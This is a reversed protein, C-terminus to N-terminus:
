NNTAAAVVRLKHPCSYWQGEKKDYLKFDPIRLTGEKLPVFRIQADVTQQSKVEGLLLASDVALLENDRKHWITGDDDGSSLGWVGFTFGGNVEAVSPADTTSTEDEVDKAMILMLDRTKEGLYLVRLSVSFPVRVCCSNEQLSIDIRFADLPKVVVHGTSWLADAAVVVRPHRNSDNNEMAVVAMVSIPSAFTRSKLDDTANVTIVTTYADHPQLTLPLQPETQPAYGWQVQRSLDVVSREGGPMSRDKLFLADQRSHGPHLAINTIIVPEAHTNSHTMKLSVLTNGHSSGAVSKVSINLAHTLSVNISVPGLRTQNAHHNSSHKTTGSLPLSGGGLELALLGSAMPRQQKMPTRHALVATVDLTTKVVAPHYAGPRVVVETELLVSNGEVICSQITIEEVLVAKSGDNGRSQV